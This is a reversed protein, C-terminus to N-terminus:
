DLKRLLHDRIQQLADVVRAASLGAIVAIVASTGAEVIQTGGLVRATAAGMLVALLASGTSYAILIPIWGRLHRSRPTTPVEGQRRHPVSALPHDSAVPRRNPPEPTSGDPATQEQPV